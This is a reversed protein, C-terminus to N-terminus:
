ARKGFGGGAGNALTEALAAAAPLQPQDDTIDSETGEPSAIAVKGSALPAIEQVLPAFRSGAVCCQLALSTMDRIGIIQASGIMKMMATALAFATDNGQIGDDKAIEHIRKRLRPGANMPTERPVLHLPVELAPFSMPQLQTGLQLVINRYTPLAEADIGYAQKAITTAYGWLTRTKVEGDHVFKAIRASDVIGREPIRLENAMLAAEGCLCGTAAIVTPWHVDGDAQYEAMLLAVFEDGVTNWRHGSAM